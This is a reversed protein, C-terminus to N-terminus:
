ADAPTSPSVKKDLALKINARLRGPRVPKHLLKFGLDTTRAKLEDGSDGSIMIVPIDDGFKQRLLLASAIGDTDGGIRYDCLLVDPVVDYEWCQAALEYDTAGAVVNCGWSELMGTM